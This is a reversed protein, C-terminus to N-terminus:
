TAWGRTLGGGQAARGATHSPRPRRYPPTPSVGRRAIVPTRRQSSSRASQLSDRRRRHRRTSKHVARSLLRGPKWHAGHTRRPNHLCRRQSAEALSDTVGSLLRWGPRPPVGAGTVREQPTRHPPHGSPMQSRGPSRRRSTRPAAPSGGPASNPPGGM